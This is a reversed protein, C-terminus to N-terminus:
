ILEKIIEEVSNPYHYIYNKIRTKSINNMYDVIDMCTKKPIISNYRWLYIFDLVTKEVDLYKLKNYKIGFKMVEPKSKSFKFKRKNITIPTNRYLNDSIVYDITFFEHTINNLKLATYLGFYWNM